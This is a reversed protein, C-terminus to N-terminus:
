MGGAAFSAMSRACLPMVICLRCDPAGFDASGQVSMIGSSPWKASITASNTASASPDNGITPAARLSKAKIAIARGAARM